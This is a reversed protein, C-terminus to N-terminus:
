QWNGRPVDWGYAYFVAVNVAVGANFWATASLFDGPFLLWDLPLSLFRPFGYSLGDFGAAMLVGGGVQQAQVDLHLGQQAAGPSFQCAFGQVVRLTDPPTPPLNGSAISQAAAGGPAVFQFFRKQFIGSGQEKLGPQWFTELFPNV